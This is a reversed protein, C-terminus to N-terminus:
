RAKWLIERVTAPLKLLAACLPYWPLMRRPVRDQLARPQVGEKLVCCHASAQLQQELHRLSSREAGRCSWLSPLSVAARM